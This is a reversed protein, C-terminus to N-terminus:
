ETTYIKSIKQYSQSSFYKTSYQLVSIEQNEETIHLICNFDYEFVINM